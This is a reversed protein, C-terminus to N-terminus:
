IPILQAITARQAVQKLYFIRNESIIFCTSNKISSIIVGMFVFLFSFTKGRISRIQTMEIRLRTPM